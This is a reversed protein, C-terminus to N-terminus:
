KKDDNQLDLEFIIEIKNFRNELIRISEITIRHHHVAIM